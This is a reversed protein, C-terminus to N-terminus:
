GPRKDVQASRPEPSAKPPNPTPRGCFPGKWAPAVWAEDRQRTVAWLPDGDEEFLTLALTEEDASLVAFGYGYFEFLSRTAGEACVDADGPGSSKASSGVVATAALPAPEITLDPGILREVPPYFQMSHEHGALYLDSAVLLDERLYEAFAKGRWGSNGVTDRYSGANGHPGTSLFPHHGFSVSWAATPDDLAASIPHERVQDVGHRSRVLYNTDLGLLRVPGVRATFFHASHTDEREALYTIENWARERSPLVKRWDHNGMVLYKPVSPYRDLMRTFRAEDAADDLGADYLNDGLFLGAACGGTRQGCAKRVGAAVEAQHGGDTDLGMDGVVFIHVSEGDVDPLDQVVCPGDCVEPVDSPFTLTRAEFVGPDISPDDDGCGAVLLTAALLTAPRRM